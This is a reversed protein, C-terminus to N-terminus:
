IMRGNKTHTITTSFDSPACIVGLVSAPNLNVADMMHRSCLSIEDWIIITAAILKCAVATGSQINSVSSEDMQLPLYFQSHLTRGNTLLSAAIGTFAVPIYALRNVICHSIIVNYLFTKGSGGPGDIFILKSADPDENSITEIVRNFIARQAENLRGINAALQINEADIDPVYDVCDLDLRDQIGEPLIQPPMDLGFDANTYGLRGLINNIHNLTLTNADEESYRRHTFDECMDPLFEVYLQQIHENTPLCYICIHAFLYRLQRPMSISVAEQLTERLYQENQILGLAQAAASFTVHLTDDVIQLDEYCTPGRCHLLLQKLSYLERNRPSIFYM